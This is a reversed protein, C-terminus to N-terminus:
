DEDLAAETWRARADTGDEFLHGAFFSVLRQEQRECAKYTRLAIRYEEPEDLDYGHEAAWDSGFADWEVTAADRFAAALGDLAKPNGYGLGCSWTVQMTRGMYRYTFTYTLHEWSEGTWPNRRHVGRGDSQIRYSMANDRKAPDANVTRLNRDPYIVPIGDELVIIGKVPESITYSM